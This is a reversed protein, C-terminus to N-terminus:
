RRPRDCSARPRRHVVVARVADEALGDVVGRALREVLDRPEEAEAVRAARRDVPERAVAIGVRDRERPRHEVVAEVERERPQLGRDHVCTRACGPRRRRRRRPTTGPPPRRRARRRLEDGRGVVRPAGVSTRPPPTAAFERRRARTASAAASSRAARRGGAARARCRCRPSSRPPPTTAGGTRRGWGGRRRSRGRGPAQGDGPLSHGIKGSSKAPYRPINGAINRRARTSERLAAPILYGELHPKSGCEQPLQVSSHPQAPPPGAVKKTHFPTWSIRLNRVNPTMAAIVAAAATGTTPLPKAPAWSAPSQPEPPGATDTVLSFM